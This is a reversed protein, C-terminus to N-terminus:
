FLPIFIWTRKLFFGMSVNSFHALMLCVIYIFFAVAISKTFLIAIIFLFFTIVKIRPDLSQLFGRKAAYEDAFVSEKLFSLADMISREILNNNRFV